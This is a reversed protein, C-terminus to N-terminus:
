LQSGALHSELRQRDLNEKRVRLDLYILVTVMASFPTTVTSAIGAALGRAFWDHGFPATILGNVLGTILGAVIITGFVPWGRGRVLERSRQLATTGREDEIVVAPLSVSCWTLFIFGPVVFLIFGLGVMVGVMVSVLLISWVRALAYTYADSVSLPHGVFLGAAERTITGTLVQIIVVGVFALVAAALSARWLGPSSYLVQRTNGVTVIRLAVSRRILQDSVLYGVVSLPIAVVAVVKVLALWNQRYMEFAATLIEGVTRPRLEFGGSSGGAGQDPTAGEDMVAGEQGSLRRYGPGIPRHQLRTYGEHGMRTVAM